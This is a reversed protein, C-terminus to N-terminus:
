NAAPCAPDFTGALSALLADRSITSFSEVDTMAWSFCGESKELNGFANEAAADYQGESIAAGSADTCTITYHEADTYITAKNALPLEEWIGNELYVARKNEYYEAMGNRIIDDFIYLYRGNQRDFYFPVNQVLIDPSSDYPPRNQMVESLGSGDESVEFIMILTYFGTGQVSASIIELRGNRDLDTVTYGWVGFVEEQKWLDKSDAIVSLQETFNDPAASVLAAPLLLCCLTLMLFIKKMFYGKM